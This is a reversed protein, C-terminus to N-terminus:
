TIIYFQLPPTRIFRLTVKARKNIIATKVRTEHAGEYLDSPLPKSLRVASLGSSAM